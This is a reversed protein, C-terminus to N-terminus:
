SFWELMLQYVKNKNIGLEAATQKVAEKKTKGAALADRLCARIEEEGPEALKQQEAGELVIVFEGRVESQQGIMQAAKALTMRWVQEHLKTLEKCLAINREPALAALEALTKKLQHPSEYLITAVPMSLAREIAKKRTKDRPLFGEFYFRGAPIASVTLASIAACAGPVPVIAIERQAALRTLAAGPDSILPTGADSVLAISEGEEMRGILEEAKAETSHEHFSILPKKIGLHSLLALTRRTDEAAILDVEELTEVARYTIDKLNGIPTAVIYLKGKEM